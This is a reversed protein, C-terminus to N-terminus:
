PKRQFFRGLKQLAVGLGQPNCGPYARLHTLLEEFVEPPCGAPAALIPTNLPTDLEFRHGRYQFVAAHCEPFIRGHRHRSQARVSSVEELYNLLRDLNPWDVLEVSQGELRKMKM